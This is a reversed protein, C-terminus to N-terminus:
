RLIYRIEGAFIRNFTPWEKSAINAAKKYACRQPSTDEIEQSIKLIEESLWLESINIDLLYFGLNNDDYFKKAFEIDQSNIVHSTSNLWRITVCRFPKQFKQFLKIVFESDIGGSYFILNSDSLSAIKRHMLDLFTASETTTTSSVHDPQVLWGVNQKSLKNRCIVDEEMLKEFGTHKLRHVIEPFYHRYLDIKVTNSWSGTPVLHHTERVFAKVVDEDENLFKFTELTNM